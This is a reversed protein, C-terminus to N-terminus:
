HADAIKFYARRIGAVVREADEELNYRGYSIRISSKAQEETLGLALLVHSPGGKGSNCASGTSVCIGWLDLLHLMAEGSVHPFTVALMGPLRSVAECQMEVGPIAARLGHATADALSILKARTEGMGAISEELAAGLAIVGAVNETGARQGHEQGGGFVLQPLPSASRSFLFGCGKPGHFKHASATLFDVHLASVDVPIHGLAQVADTHFLVGRGQLRRGIDAIPQLTGVENNALMVSVLKTSPRIASAVAEVDVVGQESVPLYSVSVGCAELARCANLVSPHEISTTVIHVAEGRFREAMGRLVWSNAESGGSTFIIESPEAGIASATQRRAEEIARKARSGISYLSSANGYSERLFPLMKELAHDSVRTTAANDAYIMNGREGKLVAHM